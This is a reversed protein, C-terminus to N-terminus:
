ESPRRAPGSCSAAPNIWLEWAYAYDAIAHLMNKRSSKALKSACPMACTSSIIRSSASKTMAPEPMTADYQGDAIARAARGLRRLPADALRGAAM